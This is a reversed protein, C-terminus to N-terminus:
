TLEKFTAGDTDWQINYAKRIKKAMNSEKTLNTCFFYGPRGTGSM